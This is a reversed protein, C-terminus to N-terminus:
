EVYPLCTNNLYSNNTPVPDKMLTSSGTLSVTAKLGKVKDFLMPSTWFTVWKAENPKLTLFRVLNENTKNVRKFELQLKIPANVKGKNFVKVRVASPAMVGMRGLDHNCLCNITDVMSVSVDAQAVLRLPKTTEIREARLGPKLARVEPTAQAFAVVAFIMSFSGVVLGRIWTKRSVKM